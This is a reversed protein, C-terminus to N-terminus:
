SPMRSNRQNLEYEPANESCGFFKTVVLEILTEALM